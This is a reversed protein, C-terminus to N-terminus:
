TNSEYYHTRGHGDIVLYQPHLNDFFHGVSTKFRVVNGQGSYLITPKADDGQKPFTQWGACTTATSSQVLNTM